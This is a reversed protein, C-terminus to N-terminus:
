DAADDGEANSLHDIGMPMNGADPKRDLWPSAKALLRPSFQASMLEYRRDFWVCDIQAPIAAGVSTAGERIHEIVMRPGVINKVRVVDGVRFKDPDHDLDISM